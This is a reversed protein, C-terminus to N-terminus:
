GLWKKMKGTPLPIDIEYSSTGFRTEVHEAIDNYIDEIKVHVIFSGTDMYCLKAKQGYKAKIYDYSFEYIITESLNLILLGWYVPNDMLIQTKRKEIALLTEIFIKTSHYNPESVLYNRRRETKVLKIDRNKRINEM